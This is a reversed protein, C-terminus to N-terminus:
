LRSSPRPALVLSTDYMLHLTSAITSLLYCATLLCLYSLLAFPLYAFPLPPCVRPVLLMFPPFPPLSPSTSRSSPPYKYVAPNCKRFAGVNESEPTRTGASVQPGVTDARQGVLPRCPTILARFLPNLSDLRLLFVSVIRPSLLGPM